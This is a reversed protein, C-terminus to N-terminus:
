NVKEKGTYNVDEVCIVRRTICQLKYVVLLLCSMIDWFVETM